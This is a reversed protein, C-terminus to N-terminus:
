RRRTAPPPTTSRARAPDYVAAVVAVFDEGLKATLAENTLRLADRPELGAELYARVTYHVLATNALADRGHGCVDGVLIGIRGDALAFVDHFDGGAAPGEAPRYAVGLAAGGISRFRPFCPPSCLASM